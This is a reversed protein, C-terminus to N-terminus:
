LQFKKRKTPINKKVRRLTRQITEFSRQNKKKDRENVLFSILDKLSKHRKIGDDLRDIMARFTIEQVPTIGIHKLQDYCYKVAANWMWVHKIIYNFPDEFLKGSWVLLLDQGIAKDKRVFIPDDLISEVELREEKNLSSSWMGLFENNLLGQKLLATHVDGLSNAQRILNLQREDLSKSKLHEKCWDLVARAGKDYNMCELYFEFVFASSLAESKTAEFSRLAEQLRRKRAESKTAEVLSRLAEQFRSERPRGRGREVFQKREDQMYGDLRWLEWYIDLITLWKKKM